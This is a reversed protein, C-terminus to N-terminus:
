PIFEDIGLRTLVVNKVYNEDDERTESAPWNQWDEGTLSVSERDIIRNSANFLTCLLSVGDYPDFDSFGIDIRSVNLNVTPITNVTINNM